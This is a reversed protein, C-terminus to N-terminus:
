AFLEKSKEVIPKLLEIEKSKLKINQLKELHEMRHTDSSIYDIMQNELLKFAMKQIGEGYHSTLSLMNLQFYCGRSKLDYYKRMKSDHFFGYREPHALILVHGKNQLKFIIEKLNIPPQLFSMEVLSFNGSIKLLKEDDLKDMLSQDMMYEAAASNKINAPKAAKLESLANNITEPTNPYYDNMVHPTHVFNTVGFEGFKKILELSTEVNPSGDDIGPLIHNHFDTFGELLDVFFYKKAFFSFM